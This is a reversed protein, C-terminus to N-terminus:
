YNSFRQCSTAPGLTPLLSVQSFSGLPVWPSLDWLRQLLETSVTIAGISASNPLFVAWRFVIQAHNSFQCSQDIGRPRALRISGTYIINWLRTRTQRDPDKTQIPPPPTYGYRSSFAPM